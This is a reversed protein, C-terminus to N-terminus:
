GNEQDVSFDIGFMETLWEETVDETEGLEPCRSVEVGGDSGDELTVTEYPGFARARDASFLVFGKVLTDPEWRALGEFFKEHRVYLNKWTLGQNGRRYLEAALIVSGSRETWTRMEGTEDDEIEKTDTRCLSCILDANMQSRGGVQIQDRSISRMWGGDLGGTGERHRFISELQAQIQSM